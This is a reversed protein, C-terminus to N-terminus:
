GVVSVTPAPERGGQGGGSSDYVEWGTSPPRRDMAVVGYLLEGRGADVAGGKGPARVIWAM